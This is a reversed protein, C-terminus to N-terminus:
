LTPRVAAERQVAGAQAVPLQRVAAAELAACSQEASRVAGRTCPAAASARRAWPAPWRERLTSSADLAQVDPARDALKEADADALVRRLDAADTADRRVGDSADWAGLEQLRADERHRDPAEAELVL